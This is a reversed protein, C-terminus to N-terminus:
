VKMLKRIMKQATEQRSYRKLGFCEKVLGHLAVRNDIRLYFKFNRVDSNPMCRPLRWFDHTLTEKTHKLAEVTVNSWTMFLNRIVLRSVHQPLRDDILKLLEQNTMSNPQNMKRIHYVDSTELDTESIYIDCDAM